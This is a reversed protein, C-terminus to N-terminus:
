QAGGYLAPLPAATLPANQGPWHVCFLCADGAGHLSRGTAHPHTVANRVLHTNMVAKADPTLNRPSHAMAGSRPVNKWVMSPRDRNHPLHRIRMRGCM